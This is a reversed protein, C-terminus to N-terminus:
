PHIVASYPMSGREVPVRMARSALRPLCPPRVTSIWRRIPRERRETSSMRANPSRVRQASQSTRWASPPVRVAAIQVEDLSGTMEKRYRAIFPVTANEELLRAVAEIQARDLNMEVSIVDIHSRNM